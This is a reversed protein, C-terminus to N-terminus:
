MCIEYYLTVNITESVTHLYINHIYIYYHVNAYLQLVFSSYTCQIICFYM